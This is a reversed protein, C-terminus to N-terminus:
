ETNGEKIFIEKRVSLAWLGTGVAYALMPLLWGSVNKNFIWLGLVGLLHFACFAAPIAGIFVIKDLLQFEKALKELLMNVALVLLGGILVSLLFATIDLARYYEPTNYQIGPANIVALIVKGYELFRKGIFLHLAFMDFAQLLGFAGTLIYKRNKNLLERCGSISM